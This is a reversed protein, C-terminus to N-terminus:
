TADTDRDVRLRTGASLRSLLRDALWARGGTREAVEKRRIASRVVRGGLYRAPEPPFRATAAMSFLERLGRTDSEDELVMSALINGGMYTGAVGHGTYGIGFAVRRQPDLHDFWPLGAPSRDVPGSWAHRLVGSPISPYMFEFDEAVERAQKESFDFASRIQGNYAITGGSRGIYVRGDPTQGGYNVMTAANFGGPRGLAWNSRLTDPIPDTAVIDSSLVMIHPQLQPLHAMWANAALVVKETVVVGSDCHLIPKGVDGTTMRRIPTKEFIRAGLAQATRALGRALLAPQLRLANDNVVADIIPRGLVHNAEARDLQRFPPSMGVEGALQFMADWAGLQTRSTATWAAQETRLECAIDHREIFEQIGRVAAGGARVVDVAASRGFLQALRPLATWYGGVGGSNRGSAGAGCIDAELIAVRLSPERQLIHIATWLGSYGGGIIAVDARHSGRLEVPESGGERELALQLWLPRRTAYEPRLRPAQFRLDLGRDTMPLRRTSFPLIIIHFHRELVRARGVAAGDRQDDSGIQCWPGAWIPTDTQGSSM